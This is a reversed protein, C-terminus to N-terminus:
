TAACMVESPVYDPVYCSDVFVSMVLNQRGNVSFLMLLRVTLAIAKISM